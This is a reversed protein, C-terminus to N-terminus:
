DSSTRLASTAWDRIKEEVSFGSPAIGVGEERLLQSLWPPLEVEAELDQLSLYYLELNTRCTPSYSARQRSAFRRVAAGSLVPQRLQPVTLRVWWDVVFRPLGNWLVRNVLFQVGATSPLDELYMHHLRPAGLVDFLVGLRFWGIECYSHQWDFRDSYTNLATQSTQEDIFGSRLLSEVQSRYHDEDPDHWGHMFCGVLFGSGCQRSTRENTGTESM